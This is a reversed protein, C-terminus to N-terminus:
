VSRFIYRDSAFVVTAGDVTAVQVVTGGIPLGLDDREAETAKRVIWTSGLEILVETREPEEAVRTLHGHRVEVLGEERLLAVARRVTHRSVGYAQTLDTESPM